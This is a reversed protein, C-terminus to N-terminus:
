VVTSGPSAGVGAAGGQRGDESHETLQGQSRAVAWQTPDDWSSWWGGGEM